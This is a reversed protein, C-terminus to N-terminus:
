HTVVEVNTVVDFVDTSAQDVGNDGNVTDGFGDKCQFTDNDAGGFLQDNGGTAILTDNGANGFLVSNATGVNEIVDAGSGGMANEITGDFHWVQGVSGSPQASDLFIRCQTTRASMDLVDIGNGGSFLCDAGSGTIVDNGDGGSVTILHGTANLLPDDGAEGNIDVSGDDTAVITNGSANGNVTLNGGHATINVGEVDPMITSAPTGVIGSDPAGDLTFLMAAGTLINTGSAIFDYGDGGSVSLAANAPFFITDDGADGFITANNFATPHDDLSDNGDGGHLTINGNSDNFIADNGAGADVFDSPGRQNFSNNVRLQILDNGAGGIITCLAGLGGDADPTFDTGMDTITDNGAGADVYIRKADSPTAYQQLVGNLSVFISGVLSGQPVQQNISISDNGPSGTVVLTGDPDLHTGPTVDMDGFNHGSSDENAGVTVTFTGSAPTTRTWGSLPNHRVFYTGPALGNFAYLAEPGTTFRVDNGDFIGNNNFDLFCAFGSLLPDGPDRVGNGNLDDFLIGSISSGTALGLDHGGSDQGSNLTIAFSGSPVSTERTGVAPLQLLHYTGAKLGLFQYHGNADAYVRLDGPFTPGGFMGDNNADIFLANVRPGDISQRIGDGNRDNWMTGSISGLSNATSTDTELRTVTFQQTGGEISTGAIVIKQDPALRFSWGYDGTGFTHESSTGATYDVEVTGTGAFTDDLAPTIPALASVAAFRQVIIKNNGALGGSELQWGIVIPKNDAEVRLEMATSGNALGTARSSSQKGTTSFAALFGRSTTASGLNRTGALWITGSPAVATVASSANAAAIQALGNTGFNTDIAGSINLRTVGFASISQGPNIILSAILRGSGDLGIGGVDPVITGGGSGTFSLERFGFTGYTADVSGDPNFHWVRAAAGATAGAVSILISADKELAMGLAPGPASEQGDGAFSADFSGDNNLRALISGAMFIHGDPLISLKTISANNVQVTGGSGFTTDISGDALMRKLTVHPTGGAITNEVLIVKGDPGVSLYAPGPKLSVNINGPSALVLKGGSGFTADLAGASLLRRTELLEIGCLLNIRRRRARRSRDGQQRRGQQRQTRSRAPVM